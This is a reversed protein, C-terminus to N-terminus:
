AARAAIDAATMVSLDIGPDIILVKTGVPTATRLQAAVQQRAEPSLRMGFKAVLVDGKKLELKEIKFQLSQTM